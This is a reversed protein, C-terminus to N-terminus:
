RCYRHQGHRGHDQTNHPHLSDLHSQGPRCHRCHQYGSRCCVLTSHQHPSHPHNQRRSGAKHELPHTHHSYVKHPLWHPLVLGLPCFFDHDIELDAINWDIVVTFPTIQIYLLALWTTRIIGVTRRIWIVLWDGAISIVLTLCQPNWSDSVNGDLICFLLLTLKLLNYRPCLGATLTLARAIRKSSILTAYLDEQNTVKPSLTARIAKVIQLLNVIVISHSSEKITSRIVITIIIAQTSALPYPTM